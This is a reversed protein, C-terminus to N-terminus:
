GDRESPQLGEQFNYGVRLRIEYILIYPPFLEEARGGQFYNENSANYSASQRTLGHARNDVSM